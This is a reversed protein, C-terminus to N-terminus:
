LILPAFKEVGLSYMFAKKSEKECVTEGKRLYTEPVYKLNLYVGFEIEVVSQSMFCLLNERSCIYRPPYLSCQYFLFIRGIKLRSNQKLVSKKKVPPVLLFRKQKLPSVSPIYNPFMDAKKSTTATTYTTLAALPIIYLHLM